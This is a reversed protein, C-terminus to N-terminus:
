IQSSTPISENKSNKGLIVISIQDLYNALEGLMDFKAARVSM